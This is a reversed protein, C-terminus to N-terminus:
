GACRPGTWRPPDPWPRGPCRRPASEPVRARPSTPRRGSTWPPRDQFGRHEGRRDPCIPDPRPTPKKWSPCSACSPGAASRAGMAPMATFKGERDLHEGLVRFNRLGVPSPGRASRTRRPSSPGGKSATKRHIPSPADGACSNALFHAINPNASGLPKAEHRPQEGNKGVM